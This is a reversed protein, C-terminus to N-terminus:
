QAAGEGHIFKGILDGVNVSSQTYSIEDGPELMLEAGGPELAIYPDGLLSASTIKAASDEPVKVNKDMVFTVRAFYTGADLGMEAVSGVKVGAIRVDSGINIGEAKRFKAYLPYGGSRVGVDATNAAYVLFGGAAALVLAGILTEAANGAM